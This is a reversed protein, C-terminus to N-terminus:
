AAGGGECELGDASPDVGAEPYPPPPSPGGLFLHGLCHIPDSIDLKGDDNSDGADECRIAQVGQFLADLAAVADSLDVKGDGNGDGRIFRPADGGLITITALEVLRAPVDSRPAHRDVGDPKGSTVSRIPVVTDAVPHWVVDAGFVQTPGPPADERVRYLMRGLLHEEGATWWRVLPDLDEVRSYRRGVKELQVVSAGAPLLDSRHIGYYAGSWPWGFKCVTDLPTPGVEVCAPALGYWWQAASMVATKHIWDPDVFAVEFGFPELRSSDHGFVLLVEELDMASQVSVPLAVIEGPAAAASELHVEIGAEEISFPPDQVVPEGGGLVELSGRGFSTDHEWWHFPEDRCYNSFHIHWYDAYPLFTPHWWGDFSLTQLQLPTSGLGVAGELIRFRLRCVDLWEGLPAVYRLSPGPGYYEYYPRTLDYEYNMVGRHDFAAGPYHNAIGSDHQEPHLDGDEPDRLLPVSELLQLAAGDFRLTFAIRNVPREARAQVTIVVEDGPFGRAETLRLEFKGLVSRTAEDVEIPPFPQTHGGAIPGAISVTGDEAVPRLVEGWSTVVETGALIRVTHEGVGDRPLTIPLVVEFTGPGMGLATDARSNGTLIGRTIIYHDTSVRLGESATGMFAPDPRLDLTDSRLLVQLADITESTEVEIRLEARHSGGDPLLPLVRLLVRPDPEPAPATDISPGPWLDFFHPLPAPSARRLAEHHLLSFIHRPLANCAFKGDFDTSGPAPEFLPEGSFSWRHLWHVDGFSVRGDGNLDGLDAAAAPMWPSALCSLFVLGLTKRRKRAM